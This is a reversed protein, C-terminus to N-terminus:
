KPCTWELVKGANAIFTRTTWQGCAFYRISYEGRQITYVKTEEDKFTFVYTEPGTFISFISSDTDENKMTVKVVKLTKSLDIKHGAKAAQHAAGGCVPMILTRSKTMDLDSEERAGCAWLTQTYEGRSVTYVQTSEGPISLNYYSPGVLKLWITKDTRNIVTLRVLESKAQANSAPAAASLLFAAMLGIFVLLRLLKNTKM